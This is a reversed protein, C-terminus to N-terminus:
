LCNARLAEVAQVPIVKDKGKKGGAYIANRFSGENKKRKKITPM